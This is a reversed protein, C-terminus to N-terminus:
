AFHLDREIIPLKSSPAQAIHAGQAPPVMSKGNAVQLLVPGAANTGGAAFSHVLTYVGTTTLKFVTGLNLTGGHISNLWNELRSELL